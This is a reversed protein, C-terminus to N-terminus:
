ILVDVLSMWFSGTMFGMEAAERRARRREAAPAAVRLAAAGGLGGLGLEWGLLRLGPGPGRLLRGVKVRVPLIAEKLLFGRPSTSPRMSSVGLPGTWSLM